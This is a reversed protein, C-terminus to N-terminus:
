YFRLREILFRSLPGAVSPFTMCVETSGGTHKRTNLHLNAPFLCVVHVFHVTCAVTVELGVMSSKVAITSEGAFGKPRTTLWLIQKELLTNKQKGIRWM